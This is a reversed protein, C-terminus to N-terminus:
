NFLLTRFVQDDLILVSPANGNERHYSLVVFERFFCILFGLQLTYNAKITIPM